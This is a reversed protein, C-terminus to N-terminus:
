EESSEISGRAATLMADLADRDHWVGDLAVGRIGRTRGIEELPDQALLVLNAHYGLEVRGLSDEQGLARAADVTAIRLVESPSLGAEVFREMEDHLSFGAALCNNPADTGLLVQVGAERIRRFIEFQKAYAQERLEAGASEIRELVNHCWDRGVANKYGIADTDIRSRDNIAMGLTPTFFVTPQAMADLVPECREWDVANWHETVIRYYADYGSGFKAGVMREFWDDSGDVCDKVTSFGLHEITRQGAEVARETPVSKPVHGAFTVGFESAGAVIAEFADPGLDDYVKFFDVGADLLKPLEDRVDTATEVILPLDGYWPKKVGDLLPGAAVFAPAITDPMADLRARVEALVAVESGMDRFTTVGNAVLIPFVRELADTASSMAHLHMDMLGPIVYGGQGDVRRTAKPLKGPDSPVVALIRDGSFVVMQNELVRDGELTVVNVYLLALTADDYTPGHCAGAGFGVLVVAFVFGRSM